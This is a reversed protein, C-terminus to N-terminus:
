KSCEDIELDIFAPNFVTKIAFPYNFPSHSIIKTKIQDFTLGDREKVCKVKLCLENYMKPYAAAKDVQEKTNLNRFDKSFSQAEATRVLKSALEKYSTKKCLATDKENSDTRYPETSLLQASALYSYCLVVLPIIIKM